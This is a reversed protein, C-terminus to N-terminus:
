HVGPDTDSGELEGNITQIHAHIDNEAARYANVNATLRSSVESGDSALSKVGYQWRNLFGSLANALGGHGVQTDTLAIDTVACGEFETLLSSVGSAAQELANLDVSFGTAM